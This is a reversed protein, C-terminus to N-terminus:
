RDPARGTEFIWQEAVLARLFIEMPQVPTMIDFKSINLLNEFSNFIEEVKGPSYLIIKSGLQLFAAFECHKQLKRLKKLNKRKIKHM